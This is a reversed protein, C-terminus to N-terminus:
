REVLTAVMTHAYVRALFDNPHNVNNGSMDYYRKLALLHKHISTMDAVAVKDGKLPNLVPLYEEQNGLFGAVEGHALMTAVLIFECDTNSEHVKSMIEKINKLYSDKDIRASGDNMGFAIFCLDPNYKAANEYANEAGWDSRTGGVATNILTIENHDYEKKLTNVTLTCWDDVFPEQNIVKSSNAGTTISDGYFLITLPEKNKLKEITKPLNSGQYSPIPGKWEGHHTYSVVLQLKHMSDSEGFYIFGGGTRGFCKGPINEELYYDRFKVTKINGDKLIQLKGDKLIYDTGENYTVTLGSNKVSLIKDAKFLLPIPDITGDENELPMFSEDTVTNGEWLPKMYEELNYM